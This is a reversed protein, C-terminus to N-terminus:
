RRKSSRTSHVKGKSSSLTCSSLGSFRLQVCLCDDQLERQADDYTFFSKKMQLIFFRETTKWRIFAALTVLRRKCPVIAYHQQLQVPISFQETSATEQGEEGEENVEKKAAKSTSTKMPQAENKSQSSEVEIHKPNRLAIGALRHLSDPLTASVLATQLQKDRYKIRSRLLKIITTVDKEFGM